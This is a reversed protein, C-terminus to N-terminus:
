LWDTSLAAAQVKEPRTPSSPESPLKTVTLVEVHYVTPYLTSPTRNVTTRFSMIYPIYHTHLPIPYTGTPSPINGSYDYGM